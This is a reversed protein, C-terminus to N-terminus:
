IHLMEIEHMTMINMIKNLTGPKDELILKISVRDDSEWLNIKDGALNALSKENKSIMEGFMRASQQKFYKKNALTKLM